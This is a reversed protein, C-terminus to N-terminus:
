SQGRAKAIVAHAIDFPYRRSEIPFEGFSAVLFELAALLDPAALILARDPFSAAGREMGLHAIVTGDAGILPLDDDELDIRWPAPTHPEVEIM